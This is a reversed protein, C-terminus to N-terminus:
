RRQKKQKVPQAGKLAKGKFFKHFEAAREVTHSYHEPHAACQIAMSLATIRSEIESRM